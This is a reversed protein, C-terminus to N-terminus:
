RPPVPPQSAGSLYRWISLPLLVTLIGASSLCWECYEHLTFGERYTLYMSFGWGFIVLGLMGLRTAEREPALLTALIGVYGIAGLLAVPVGAIKAYVSQQVAECSNHKTTCAVVFGAYHAVTLYTAIGLGIVGLVVMVIRLVRRRTASRDPTAADAAQTSAPAPLVAGRRAAM